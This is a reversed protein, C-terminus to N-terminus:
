WREHEAKLSSRAARNRAEVAEREIQDASKAPPLAKAKPATWHARFNYLASDSCHNEYGEAEKVRTTPDDWPLDTWEAALDAAEPTVKIRGSRMEGNLLAIAGLKGLKEAPQICSEAVSAYRRNHAEIYPAGLGGADGVIATPKWREVLSRTVESADDPLLRYAKSAHVVYIDRSGKPSWYVTWACADKKTGFDVGITAHGYEWPQAGPWPPPPIGDVDNFPSQYEYVRGSIDNVFLGLYERQFTANDETWKNRALVSDLWARANRPFKPNDLVCWRHASWGGKRGLCIDAWPGKSTVSPTGYLTLPGGTDGLAPELVEDVLRPLMRQYTAVEDFMAARMKFGRLLEVSGQDNMGWFQIRSGWPTFFCGEQGNPTFPLGHKVVIAHINAWHLAKAKKQTEAGIIVAENFGSDLAYLCASRPMGESKGARRGSHNARFQSPDDHLKIQRDFLEARIARKWQERQHLMALCARQRQEASASTM